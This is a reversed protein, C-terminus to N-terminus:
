IHILSLTLISASTRETAPDQRLLSTFTPVTRDIVLTQPLSTASALSGVVSTATISHNGVTWDVSPTVTYAGTTANATATGVLVGGDFVRVTAGPDAFGNIPARLNNTPSAFLTSPTTAEGPVAIGWSVIASPASENGNVDVATIYYFYTIGRAVVQHSFSTLPADVSNLQNFNTADTSVYIRYTKLDPETNATWALNISNTGGATLLNPAAPVGGDIILTKTRVLSGPAGPAPTAINAVNGAFDTITGGNLALAAGSAIDLASTNDGPLVTYMFRLSSTQSGSLYTLEANRTGANVTLTPSGTVVVPESFNVDVFIDVGAKYVGNAQASTIGTV